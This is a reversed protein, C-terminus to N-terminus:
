FNNRGAGHTFVTVPIIAEPEGSQWSARSTITAGLRTKNAGAKLRSHGDPLGQLLNKLVIPEVFSSSLSKALEPVQRWQEDALSVNTTGLMMSGASDFLVRDLQCSAGSGSRKVYTEACGTFVSDTIMTRGAMLVGVTCGSVTCHDIRADGQVNVGTQAPEIQDKGHIVTNIFNARTGDCVMAQPGRNDVVYCSQINHSAGALWLGAVMNRRVVAQIYVSQTNMVDVVGCGGNREFLGGEILGSTSNHLSLGQDCNFSGNVNQFVAGAALFTSFGDDSSYMSALNRIVVHDDNIIVGHNGPVQVRCEEIKRGVPPRFRIRVPHSNINLFFGGPQIQGLSEAHPAPKGDLFFIEPAEPEHWWSTRKWHWLWNSKPMGGQPALRMIVANDVYYVDNTELKWADGPISVLGSVTAGHGDIVLPAGASGLNFGEIQFTEHYPSGTNALHIWAGPRAVHLARMFTRVPGNTGDPTAAAGNRADDGQVNDVYIATAAMADGAAVQCALVGCLVWGAVFLRLGTVLITM